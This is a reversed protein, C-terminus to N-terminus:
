KSYIRYISSDHPILIIGLQYGCVHGLSIRLYLVHKSARALSSVRSILCSWPLLGQDRSIYISSILSGEDCSLLACVRFDSQRPECMPKLSKQGQSCLLPVLWQFSYNRRSLITCYYHLISTFFLNLSDM